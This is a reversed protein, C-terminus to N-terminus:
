REVSLVVAKSATFALEIRALHALDHTPHTGEPIDM